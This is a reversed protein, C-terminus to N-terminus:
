CKRGKRKRVSYVLTNLSRPKLQLTIKGKSRDNISVKAAESTHNNFLVVTVKKDPRLFAITQFWEQEGSIDTDIRRSGSPIFKAFHAMAYFLPQKIIGTFDENALIYADLGVANEFYRPGGTHNLIMNWDLYAATFHCLDQMLIEILETARPWSGPLIKPVDVVAFSMETYLIPKEPYKKHLADLIFPSAIGDFYAHIDIFSIYDMAPPNGEDVGTVWNTVNDRGDDHGHIAVDTSKLTPALNEVIWKGHNRPEWYVSSFNNNWAAVFPENNTTVGWVAMKDKRMLEIYKFHYDAWTQYYEPKVGNYNYGTWDYRNKMWRPPSWAASIIKINRICSVKMLDRIQDNRHKDRPDLETFNSLATDNLPYENYAWPELDFDCGGMPIRMMNYGMGFKKSFYSKYVCNRLKPPMQDLVYSVAGTFSGGFGFIKQYQKRRNIKIYIQSYERDGRGGKEFSGKIYSFRDGDESSTVLTFEDGYSPEPVDLSDCYNSDCTCVYGYEARQLRCPQSTQLATGFSVVTTVLLFCLIKM